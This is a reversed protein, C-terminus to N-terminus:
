RSLSGPLPPPTLEAVVGREVAGVRLKGSRNKAYLEGWCREFGPPPQDLGSKQILKLPIGSIGVSGTLKRLQGTGVRNGVLFLVAGAHSASDGTDDTRTYDTGPAVLCRSRGLGFLMGHPAAEDGLWLM